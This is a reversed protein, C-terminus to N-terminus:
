FRLINKCTQKKKQLSDLFALYAGCSSVNMLADATHDLISIFSKRYKQSISLFHIKNILDLCGKNLFFLRECVLVFMYTYVYIYVCELGELPGYIFLHEFLLFFSFEYLVM